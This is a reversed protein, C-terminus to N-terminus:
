GLLKKRGIFVISDNDDFEQYEELELIEFHAEFLNKLNDITQYNVMMGKFNEDGEGKWFSHCIVGNPNLIELQRQISKALDDDSLHQLVKNSYIGDFKKDTELSIADLEIFTDEPYNVLLRKLFEGSFDSGIVNFDKKLIQFDTGPGSGVELLLSGAPLHKKLKSILQASDVDKALQIYEEVSESSKYYDDNAAM